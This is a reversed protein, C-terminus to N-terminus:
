KNELKEIRNELEKIKKFLAACTKTLAANYNVQMYESDKTVTEPAFDILEQAIFGFSPKHSERWEFYHM